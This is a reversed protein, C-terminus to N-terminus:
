KNNNNNKIRINNNFSCFIFYFFYGVKRGREEGMGVGAVVTLRDGGRARTGDGRRWEREEGVWGAVWFLLTALVLGGCNDSGDARVGCIWLRQGSLMM